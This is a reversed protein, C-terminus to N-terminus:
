LTFIAYVAAIVGLLLLALLAYVALDDSQGPGSRRVAARAPASATIALPREKPAPPRPPM